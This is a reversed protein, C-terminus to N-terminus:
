GVLEGFEKRLENILDDTHFPKYFVKSAGGPGFVDDERMMTQQKIESHGTIIYIPTNAMSENSRLRWILYHGGAEPMMFDTIVVHPQERLALRYAEIGNYAVFVRAGLKRLRTELTKSVEPDDDVLLVRLGRDLKKFDDRPGLARGSAIEAVPTEIKLHKAIISQIVEWTESSKPVYYAGLADCREYTETDENGTLVIVNISPRKPDLLWECVRFGDVEPMNIDVIMLDPHRQGARLIAQLGNSATVVDIGLRKCRASLIRVVGPDDDAILISPKRDMADEHTASDALEGGSMPNVQNTLM